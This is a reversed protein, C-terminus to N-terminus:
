GGDGAARRDPKSGDLKTYAPEPHCPFLRVFDNEFIAPKNWVWSSRDHWVPDTDKAIFFDVPLASCAAAFSELTGHSYLQGLRAYTPACEGPDGGFGTGCGRDAAVTQRQGYLGWFTDQYDVDPNQQIIARPPTRARLWEYAERNAYTREGLKQDAAMWPIKPVVGADSLVPFFRLIALDCVVGAAGVILLLHLM